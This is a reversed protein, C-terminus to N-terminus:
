LTNQQQEKGMAYQAIEPAQLSVGLKELLLSIINVTDQDNWKFEHSVGTVTGSTTGDRYVESTALFHTDANALYQINYNADTYYDFFPLYWKGSDSADYPSTDLTLGLLYSFKVDGELTPSININTKDIIMLPSTASGKMVVDGAWENWESTVIDYRYDGTSMRAWTAHRYEGSNAVVALTSLAKTTGAFTVAEDLIFFPSLSDLMGQSGAWKEYQQNFYELHCQQLLYTFREPKVINGKSEKKLVTLVINYVLGLNM